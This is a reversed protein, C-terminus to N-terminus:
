YGVLEVVLSEVKAVVVSKVLKVVWWIEMKWDWLTETREVTKEDLCKSALWHELQFTSFEEFRKKGV